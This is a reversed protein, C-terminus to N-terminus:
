WERGCEKYLRMSVLFFSGLYDEEFLQLPFFHTLLGTPSFLVPDQHHHM